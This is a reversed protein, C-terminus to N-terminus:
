RTAGGSILTGIRDGRVAREINGTVTMDFVVIPMENDMALSVATADLAQLRNSLLETYGIQAYRQAEPHTEPDADYVGDVRTAKLIVHAHIEVARDALQPHREAM